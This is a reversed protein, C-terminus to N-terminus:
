SLFHKYFKKYIRYDIRSVIFMAVTGISAWIFQRTIFYMGNGYRYNASPYSASFIMITGLALIILLIILFRADIKERTKKVKKSSSIILNM